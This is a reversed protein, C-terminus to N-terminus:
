RGVRIRPDIFGYSVDVLLNSFVLISGFVLNTGLIVFLDLRQLSGLLYPGMGPLVFIQEFIVTGAVLRPRRLDVVTVVPIMSNRLVHRFYVERAGLGKARATRVYDQRIVELVQTRVLRVMTGIPSLGLLLMPLWMQHLNGLPDEWLARYEIRPAWGLWLSGFVLVLTAVWFGPVAYFLIAVGRTAYDVASDQRVASLLGIPIAVILTILLAGGGLELSTPVRYKLEETVSRGTFFSTGFDGTFVGGAWRGYQVLLPGDLGFEKRLEAKRVPDDGVETDAFAYDVADIPMVIKLLVFVLISLGFLTPVALAARQAIYQGM